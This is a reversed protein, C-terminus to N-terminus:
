VKHGFFFEPAMWFVSSQMANPDDSIKSMGFDSIKVTGNYDLLFNSSDLNRHIIGEQHLCTLGELMQRTFSLTLSQQIKGYTRVLSSINTGSVYEFFISMSAPTRDHSLYSVINPHHLHQTINVENELIGFAKGSKEMEQSTANPHIEVQKVAILGGTTENLGLYLHGFTWKGIVAGRM